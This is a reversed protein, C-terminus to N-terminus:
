VIRVWMDILSTQCHINKLITPPIDKVISQCTSQMGIQSCADILLVYIIANAQINEKKMEKYLDLTKMPMRNENYCKMMQGYEIVHRNIKSFIKEANSLDGYKVFMDLVSALIFKNKDSSQPLQSFIKRGFNLGEVTGLRACSNFLLNFCIDDPHDIHSFLEFAKEPLNNM